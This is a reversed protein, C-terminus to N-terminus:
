CCVVLFVAVVVVVHQSTLSSERWWQGKFNYSRQRDFSLTLPLPSSSPLWSQERHNTPSTTWSGHQWITTWGQASLIPGWFTPQITNFANSFYFFMVRVTHGAKKLHSAPPLHYCRIGWHWTSLHVTNIVEGPAQPPINRRFFIVMAIDIKTSNSNSNNLVITSIDILLFVM